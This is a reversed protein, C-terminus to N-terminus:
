LGHFSSYIYNTGAQGTTFSGPLKGVPAYRNCTRPLAYAPLASVQGNLHSEGAPFDCRMLVDDIMGTLGMARGDDPSYIRDIGYAHLERIEEPLITGGGGGFIKIHGAGREALLERMYRFFEMHGGQYSSVAIAHAGEAIAAEVIEDM